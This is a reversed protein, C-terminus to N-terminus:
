LILILVIISESNVYTILNYTSTRLVNYKIYKYKFSDYVFIFMIKYGIFM